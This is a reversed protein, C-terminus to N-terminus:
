YYGIIVTERYSVIISSSKNRCLKTKYNVISVNLLKQKM